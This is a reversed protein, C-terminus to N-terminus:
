SHFELGWNEVKGDHCVSLTGGDGRVVGNLAGGKGGGLIYQDNGQRGGEEEKGAWRLLGSSRCGASTAAEEGEGEGEGGGGGVGLLLGTAASLVGSQGKEEELRRSGRRVM